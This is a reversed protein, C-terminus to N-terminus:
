FYFIFNLGNKIELIECINLIVKELFDDLDTQCKEKMQITANGFDSLKGILLNDNNNNNSCIQFIFFFLFSHKM